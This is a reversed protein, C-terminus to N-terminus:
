RLSPISAGRRHANSAHLHDISPLPKSLLHFPLRRTPTVTVNTSSTSSTNGVEPEKPPEPFQAYASSPGTYSEQGKMANHSSGRIPLPRNPSPPFATRDSPPSLSSSPSKRLVNPNTGARTRSTDRSSNTTVIFPPKPTTRLQSASMSTRLRRRSPVASTLPLSSIDDGNASPGASSPNSSQSKVDTSASGSRNRRMYKEMANADQERMRTAVPSLASAPNSVGLFTASNPPLPSHTPISFTSVTSASPTPLFTSTFSPASTQSQISASHQGGFSRGSPLSSNDIDGSDSTSTTRSAGSGSRLRVAGMIEMAKSPPLNQTGGWETGRAAAQAFVRRAKKNLEFQTRATDQLTDRTSFSYAYDSPTFGENNRAAYQCGREILLQVIPLHGWSSAYHLPTNGQDDSLDFDAGLDCLMRVLEENGKLSSVHLATKGQLNSWDLIFPYRDYYLRAMRLAAGMLDPDTTGYHSNIPPKLDALLILITNNESDRSLEDDDHGANLLFEFTEEHGLVAAWALSTYRKPATDPNRMDTRQILRKVLFLNNEQVARRLRATADKEAM